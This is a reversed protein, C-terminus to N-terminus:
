SLNEEAAAGSRLIFNRIEKSKGRKADASKKVEEIRRRRTPLPVDHGEAVAAHAHVVDLAQISSYLM